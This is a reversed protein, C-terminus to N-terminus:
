CGGTSATVTVGTSAASYTFNCTAAGGTIQWAGSANLTFDDNLGAALGIGASANTPYGDTLAISVGELTVTSGSSGGALWASHAIAAGSKAAGVGAEVVATNADTSLNAFRPLAFASLIGLIVIVMVLEILTFGTQQKKM